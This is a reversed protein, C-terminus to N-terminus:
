LAFIIVISLTVFAVWLMNCIYHRQQRHLRCKIIYEEPELPYIRTM